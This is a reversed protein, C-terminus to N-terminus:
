QPKDFDLKGPNRGQGDYVALTMQRAREKAKSAEDLSRKSMAGAKVWQDVKPTMKSYQQYGTNIRKKSQEEASAYWEEADNKNLGKENFDRARVRNTHCDGKMSFGTVSGWNRSRLEGCEPCKTEKPATGLPHDQEWIQECDNCIWDYYTM